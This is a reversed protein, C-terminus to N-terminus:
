CTTSQRIGVVTPLLSFSLKLSNVNRESKQELLSNIGLVDAEGQKGRCFSYRLCCGTLEIYQIQWLQM